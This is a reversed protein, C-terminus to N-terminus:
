IYYPREQHFICLHASAAHVCSMPASLQMFFLCLHASGDLLQSGDGIPLFRLYGCPSIGGGVLSLAAQSLM